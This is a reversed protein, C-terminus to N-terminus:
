ALWNLLMASPAGEHHLAAAEVAADVAVLPRGRRALLVRGTESQWRQRRNPQRRQRRDVCAQETGDARTDVAQQSATQGGQRVQGQGRQRGQWGDAQRAVGDGDEAGSGTGSAVDRLGVGGRSCSGGSAKQTSEKAALRCLALLRVRAKVALHGMLEM